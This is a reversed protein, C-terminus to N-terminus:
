QSPPKDAIHHTVYARNFHHLLGLQSSAHAPATHWEASLSVTESYSHNRLATTLLQWPEPVDAERYGTKAM